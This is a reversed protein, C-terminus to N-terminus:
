QSSKKLLWNILVVRAINQVRDMDSWEVTHKPVFAPGFFGQDGHLLSDGHSLKSRIAYFRKRDEPTTTANPAYEEVFSSFRANSSPGTSLNCTKCKQSNDPRPMLTEVAIVLATYKASSSLSAVVSAHQYWYCARFFRDKEKNPLTFVKECLSDMTDPLTVVADTSIWRLAFHEQAPRRVLQAISSIDSFHDRSLKNLGAWSYGLQRFRSSPSEKSSESQDDLVWHHTINLRRGHIPFPLLACLLLEIERGVRVRRSTDVMSDPVSPYHFEVLFPHDGILYPPRPADPPVPFIQFVDRFRYAGTTPIATFAVFRGVRTTSPGLLASQIASRLPELDQQDWAPGTRIARLKGKLYHLSISYSEESRGYAYEDISLQRGRGFYALLVPELETPAVKDAYLDHLLNRNSM